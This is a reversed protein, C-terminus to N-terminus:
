KAQNHADIRPDRLCFWPVVKKGLKGLVPLLIATRRDM